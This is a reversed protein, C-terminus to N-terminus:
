GVECPFYDHWAKSAAPAEPHSREGDQRWTDLVSSGRCIASWAMKPSHMPAMAQSGVTTDNSTRARLYPKRGIHRRRGMQSRFKAASSRWAGRSSEASSTSGALCFVQVSETMTRKVVEAIPRTILKSAPRLVYVPGRNRVGKIAWTLGHKTVQTSEVSRCQSISVM